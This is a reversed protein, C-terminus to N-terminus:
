SHSLPFPPPEAPYILGKGKVKGAADNEVSHIGYQKAKTGPSERNRAGDDGVAISEEDLGVDLIMSLEPCYQLIQKLNKNRSAGNGLQISREPVHYGMPKHPHVHGTSITSYFDSTVKEGPLAAIRHGFWIDERESNNRRRQFSLIRRVVVWSWSLWEDLGVASNACLIGDQEFRFVWEADPLFEDYFRVDTLLRSVDESAELKWTEPLRVLELKGYKRRHEIAKSKGLSYVSKPSGIFLFRWDPPVVAMMHLILPALHPLPRPEIMLAVKSVNLPRFVEEPIDSITTWANQVRLSVDLPASHQRLSLTIWWTSILVIGILLRLQNTITMTYRPLKFMKMIYSTVNPSIWFGPTPSQVFNEQQFDTPPSLQVRTTRSPAVMSLAALWPSTEKTEAQYNSGMIDSQGNRTVSLTMQVLKSM